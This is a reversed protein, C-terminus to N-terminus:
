GIKRYNKIKGIPGSQWDDIFNVMQSKNSQILTQVRYVDKSAHRLTDNAMVPMVREKCIFHFLIYSIVRDHKIKNQKTSRDLMRNLSLMQSM